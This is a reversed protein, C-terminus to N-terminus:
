GLLTVFGLVATAAAMLGAVIAPIASEKRRVHVVIAGILLILWCVAAIPSLLPATGTLAPVVIGIAAIVELAGITKSQASSFKETWHMGIAVLAETPRILKLVGVALAFLATLSAVVWFAVEM